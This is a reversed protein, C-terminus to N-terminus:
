DTQIMTNYVKDSQLYGDSKLHLLLDKMSSYSFYYM